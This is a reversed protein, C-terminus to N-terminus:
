PPARDPRGPSNACATSSRSTALRRESTRSDMRHPFPDTPRPWRAAPPWACGSSVPSRASASRAPPRPLVPHPSAYRATRPSSSPAARDPSGASGTGASRGARPAPSASSTGASRPRTPPPATDASSTARRQGDGAAGTGGGGRELATEAAGRSWARAPARPGAPLGHRRALHAGFTTAEGGEGWGQHTEHDGGGVVPPSYQGCGASEGPRPRGPNM